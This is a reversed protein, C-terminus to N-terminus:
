EGMRRILEGAVIKKTNERVEYSAWGLWIAVLLLIFSVVYLPKDLNM